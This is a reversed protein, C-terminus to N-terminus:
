KLDNSLKISHIVPVTGTSVLNAYRVDTVCFFTGLATTIAVASSRKTPKEAYCINIPDLKMGDLPRVIKFSGPM